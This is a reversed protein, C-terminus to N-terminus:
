LGTDAFSGNAKHDDLVGREFFQCVRGAVIPEGFGLAFFFRKGSNAKRVPQLSFYRLKTVSRIEM